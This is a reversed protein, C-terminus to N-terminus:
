ALQENEFWETWLRKSTNYSLIWNNQRASLRACTLIKFIHLWNNKKRLCARSPKSCFRWLIFSSRAWFILERLKSLLHISTRLFSWIRGCVASSLFKVRVPIWLSLDCMKAYNEGFGLSFLANWYWVADLTKRYWYKSFCIDYTIMSYHILTKITNYYNHKLSIIPYFFQLYLTSRTLEETNTRINM